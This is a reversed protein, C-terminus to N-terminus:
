KVHNSPTQDHEFFNNEVFDAIVSDAHEPDPGIFRPALEGAFRGPFTSVMSDPELSERVMAALTAPDNTVPRQLDKATLLGTLMSDTEIGEIGGFKRYDPEYFITPWGAYLSQYFASSLNSVVVDYKPLARQFTPETDWQIADKFDFAALLRDELDHGHNPHPRITVTWGENLLSGVIGFIEMYYQDLAYTRASNIFELIGFALILMKKGHVASKKSRTANM